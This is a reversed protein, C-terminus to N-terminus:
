FFNFVPGDNFVTLELETIKEIKKKLVENFFHESEYHGFDIINLGAEMAELADHYGIDGTIFLDINKSKAERWYSMASGNILVVKKIKSNYDRSIVRLNKIGLKEKIEEIYTKLDKEQELSYIRGIGSNNELNIDLIKSNKQGLKELVYDNLGGLTSDLNTHICYVNIDNKILKRLKKGLIDQERVSKIARFIVPHHTIIMDVKNEIATDIVKLTADISFQIRKVEKNFDGVVLGVNDWDEANACPFNDELIKIIDKAKM